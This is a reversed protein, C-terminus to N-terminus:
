LKYLEDHRKSEPFLSVSEAACSIDPGRNSKKSQGKSSGVSSSANSHKSSGKVAVANPSQSRYGGGFTDENSGNQQAVYPTICSNQTLKEVNSKTAALASDFRSFIDSINPSSPIGNSAVAPQTGSRNSPDVYDSSNPDSYGNRSGNEAPSKSGHSRHHSSPIDRASSSDHSNDGKTNSLQKPKKEIVQIEDLLSSAGDQSVLPMDIPIIDPCPILITEKLFFAENSYLRNIRKLQEISINYKLSIASVNGNM